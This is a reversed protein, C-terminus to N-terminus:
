LRVGKKIRIRSHSSFPQKGTSLQAGPWDRCIEEIAIKLDLARRATYHHTRVMEYGQEAIQLREEEHQLYYEAKEEFDYENIDVFHVGPLFGLDALEQSASALLLTKCALVEYYKALPYRFISDCSFFIKARNIEWAYRTGVLAGDEESFNRYGPHEHYVFGPKDSMKELIRCRLPYISEHVAGLMLYDIDRNLAYDYFVDTNAHHPLWRFKPWFEPYWDSFRDRYISFIGPANIERLMRTRAEIEYHLDHLLVAWPLSLGALGTIIPSNTEAFENIFVFDPKAGLSRIIENIDGSWHWLQLDVMKGLETLLYHFNPSLYHTFDGTTVLVRM